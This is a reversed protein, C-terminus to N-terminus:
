INCYHYVTNGKERHGFVDAMNSYTVKNQNGLAKLEQRWLPYVAKNELALKIM